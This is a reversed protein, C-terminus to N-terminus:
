YPEDTTLPFVVLSTLFFFIDLSVIRNKFSQGRVARARKGRLVTLTWFGLFGYTAQQFILTELIFGFPFVRTFIGALFNWSSLFENNLQFSNRFYHQAGDLFYTSDITRSVSERLPSSNEKESKEPSEPKDPPAVKPEPRKMLPPPVVDQLEILEKVKELAVWDDMGRTWVLTSKNIENALMKKELDSKNFPGERQEGDVSIFFNM